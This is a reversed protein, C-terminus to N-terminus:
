PAGGVGLRFAVPVAPARPLRLRLDYLSQEASSWWMRHRRPSEPLLIEFGVGGDGHFLTNGLEGGVVQLESGAQGDFALFLRDIPRPSAVVLNGWRGGGLFLRGRRESVAGGAVLVRVGEQSLFDAGVPRLTSEHPLWRSALPAAADRPALRGGGLGIAGLWTPWLVLGALAVVALPAVVGSRKTPVLWLAGYAPLWWGNGLPADGAWDFPWVVIAVLGIGLATAVLGSRRAGPEWLALVLLLPLLYPLAGVTRGAALFLANWGLLSLDLVPGAAALLSPVAGGEAFAGGLGPLAGGEFVALPTVWPLAGGFVLAGGFGVALMALVGAGLPVAGGRRRGSPLALVAPVVLALHLPHFLGALGLLAGIAVWRLMVRPDRAGLPRDYIEPMEGFTPTESRFVLAFAAVVAALVLAEPRPELVFRLAVSALLFVALLRWPADLRQRLTRAALVMALVLFLANALVVGRVGGVLAFPAALAALPLPEPFAAAEGDPPEALLVRMSEGQPLARWRGLDDETLRSDLDAALSQAQLVFALGRASEPPEAPGITALAALLLLLVAAPGADRWRRRPAGPPQLSRLDREGM